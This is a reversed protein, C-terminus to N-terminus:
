YAQPRVAFQQLQAPNLGSGSFDAGSADANVFSAGVLVASTVNAGALTANRFDADSLDAAELDTGSLYAGVLSADVLKCSKLSAGSFDADDLTARTLNSGQLNCQVFTGFTLVKGALYLGSLDMGGVDLGTLDSQLNLQFRQLLLEQSATRRSDSWVFAAAVLGGSLIGAGLNTIDNEEDSTASDIGRFGLMWLGAGALIVLFPLSYIKLAAPM